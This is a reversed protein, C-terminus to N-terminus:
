GRAQQIEPGFGAAARGDLGDQGAAHGRADAHDIEYAQGHALDALMIHAQGQRAPGAADGGHGLGLGHGLERGLGLAHFGARGHGGFQQDIGPLKRVGQDAHPLWSLVRSVRASRSM